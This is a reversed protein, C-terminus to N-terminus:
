RATETLTATFLEEPKNLVDYAFRLAVALIMLALLLRFHEGRINAGARAGFQAGFVSGILLVTALVADVAHSSTAHLLTAAIMTCLIQFLSTGVVVNAPVRFIYILAPVLIFGGGIGLVAGAFGIGCSIVLLPIISVYLGSRHFRMKFPLGEYWRHRGVTRRPPPAGSRTRAVARLSEALMLGGVLGLLTIYSLVIVIDLQGSERMANFFMVGLQTGILGGVILVTGLKVDLAKKRWYALAGTLSSGAIQPAQSAVVVPSPLGLFILMPTLLFGGGVGFLGSIFGVAAGLGLIVFVNVPMEAIPLYVEM